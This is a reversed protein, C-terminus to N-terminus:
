SRIKKRRFVTVAALGLGVLALSLPEPAPAAAGAIIGAAPDFNSVFSTNGNALNLAVVASSMNDFAYLEGNVPVVAGLALATASIPTALGTDTNIQYLESSIVPTITFPSFNIKIADFTAYLKGNSAFLTEDFANKTGDPNFTDPTAPVAPIGTPGVLTARGTVPNVQYLSNSFDTAYVTGGLEGILNASTLGCPAPPFCGALGTPGIVTTIGTAPNISDLNGSGGLTLLTGNPGAALGFTFEPTNPGIQTVAGTALNATGFQGNQSGYLLYVSSASAPVACLACAIILKRCTLM